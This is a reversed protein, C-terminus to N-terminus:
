KSLEDEIESELVIEQEKSITLNERENIEEKIKRMKETKDETTSGALENLLKTKEDLTKKSIDLKQELLSNGRFMHQLDYETNKIRTKLESIEEEIKEKETKEPSM